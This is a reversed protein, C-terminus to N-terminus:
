EGNEKLITELVGKLDGGDHRFALLAVLLADPDDQHDMLAKRLADIRDGTIRNSRGPKHVASAGPQTVGKKQKGGISGPTSRTKTAEKLNVSPAAATKSATAHPTTQGGETTGSNGDEEGQVTGPLPEGDNDLGLQLFFPNPPPNNAEEATLSTNNSYRGGYRNRRIELASLIGNIFDLSDAQSTKYRVDAADKENMSWVPRFKIAYEDPDVDPLASAGIWMTLAEVPARLYLGQLAEVSDYYQRADGEGTANMGAAGRGFLLSVPINVDASVRMMMRDVVDAVGAFELKDRTYDEDEALMVGHLYNKSLEINAMRQEIAGYDKALLLQKLNKIKYKGIVSEQMLNSIANWSLGMNSLSDFAAQIVGFGWYRRYIDMGPYVRDPTPDGRWEVVRTWHIEYPPGYVRRVTFYAPLDYRVSEPDTDLDTPMIWIEAASHTRLGLLKQPNEPDFKFPASLPKGDDWLLITLAGGFLRTWQLAEGFHKRVNLRDMQKVIKGDPDGDIDWGNRTADDALMKVIRKGLGDGIYFASLEPFTLMYPPNVQNATTRDKGRVGSGTVFNRFSDNHLYVERLIGENVRAGLSPRRQMAKAVAAQEAQIVELENPM